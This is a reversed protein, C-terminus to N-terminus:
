CDLLGKRRSKESLIPSSECVDPKKKWREGFSTACFVRCSSQSSLRTAKAGYQMREPLKDRLLFDFDALVHCRIDLKLVLKVLECINDKGSVSVISVNGEDLKGPFLEHAAYRLLVDDFGECM